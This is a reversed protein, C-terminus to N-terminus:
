EEASLFLINNKLASSYFSNLLTDVYLFTWNAGFNTSYSAGWGETAVLINNGEFSISKANQSHEPFTTTQWNIGSNTSMVLSTSGAFVTSGSGEASSYFPQNGDYYNQSWTQGSNTSVFIGYGWTTAILNSNSVALGYSLGGTPGNLQVWQTNLVNTILLISFLAPLFNYLLNM